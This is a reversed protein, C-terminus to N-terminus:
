NEKSYKKFKIWRQGRHSLSILPPYIVGEGEKRIFIASYRFRTLTLM